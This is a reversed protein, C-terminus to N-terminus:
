FDYMGVKKMFKLIPHDTSKRDQGKFSYFVKKGISHAHIPLTGIPVSVAANIFECEEFIIDLEEKDSKIFHNQM